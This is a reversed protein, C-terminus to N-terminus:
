FHIYVMSITKVAYSIEDDGVDNVVTCHFVKTGKHKVAILRLNAGGDEL